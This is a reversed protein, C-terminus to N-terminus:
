GGGRLVSGSTPRASTGIWLASPLRPERSRSAAGATVLKQGLSCPPTRSPTPPIGPCSSSPSPHCVSVLYREPLVSLRWSSSNFVAVSCSCFYHPPDVSHHPLFVSLSPSPELGAPQLFSARREGGCVPPSSLPPGAAAPTYVCVCVCVCVQQMSCSVRWCAGSPLSAFAKALSCGAGLSCLFCFGPLLRCPLGQGGAQLSSWVPVGLEAGGRQAPGALTRASLSPTNQKSASNRAGPEPSPTNSPSLTSSHILSCLVFFLHKRSYFYVMLFPHAYM